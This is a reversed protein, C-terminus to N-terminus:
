RNHGGRARKDRVPDELANELQKSIIDYEATRKLDISNPTAVLAHTSWFQESEAKQAPTLSKDWPEKPALQGYFATFMTNKGDDDRCIGVTLLNTDVPSKGVAIPSTHERGNRYMYKIEDSPMMEVCNDKGITRGMDVPGISFKGDYNDIKGIAEIIHAMNVNPHAKMHEITNSNIYIAENNATRALFVKDQEPRENTQESTGVNKIADAFREIEDLKSVRNFESQGMVAEKHTKESKNEALYREPGLEILRIVNQVDQSTNIEINIDYLDEIADDEDGFEYEM